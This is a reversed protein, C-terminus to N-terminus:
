DKSDRCIFCSNYIQKATRYYLITLDILSVFNFYTLCSVARSLSSAFIANGARSHTQRDTALRAAHNSVLQPTLSLASRKSSKGSLACVVTTTDSRCNHSSNLTTGRKLAALCISPSSVMVAAAMSDFCNLPAGKPTWVALYSKLKLRSFSFTSQTHNGTLSERPFIHWDFTTNRKNGYYKERRRRRRKFYYKWM